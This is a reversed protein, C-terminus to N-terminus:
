KRPYEPIEPLHYRDVKVTECLSAFKDLAEASADEFLDFESFLKSTIM